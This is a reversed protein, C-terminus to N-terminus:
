ESYKKVIGCQNSIMINCGVRNGLGLILNRMLIRTIM